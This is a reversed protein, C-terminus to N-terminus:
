THTGRGAPSAHGDPGVVVVVKTDVVTVLVVAVLEVDLVLLVLKVVEVDSADVM